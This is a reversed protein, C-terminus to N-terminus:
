WRSSTDGAPGRGRCRCPDRDCGPCPHATWSASKRGQKDVWYRLTWSRDCVNCNIVGEDVRGYDLDGVACRHDRTRL